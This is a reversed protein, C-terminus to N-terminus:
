LTVNYKAKLDVPTNSRSILDTEIRRNSVQTMVFNFYYPESHFYLMRSKNKMNGGVNMELLLFHLCIQLGGM